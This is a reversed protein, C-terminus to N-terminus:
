ETVSKLLHKRTCNGLISFYPNSFYEQSLICITSGNEPKFARFIIHSYLKENQSGPFLLVCHHVSYFCWKLHCSIANEMLSKSLM